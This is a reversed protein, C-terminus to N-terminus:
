ATSPPNNLRLIVKPLKKAEAVGGGEGPAGDEDEKPKALTLSELQAAMADVNTSDAMVPALVSPVPPSAGAKTKTKKAPSGKPTAAASM